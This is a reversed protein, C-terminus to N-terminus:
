VVEILGAASIKEAGILKFNKELVEPKSANTTARGKTNFHISQFM